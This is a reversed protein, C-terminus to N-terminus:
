LCAHRCGGAAERAFMDFCKDDILQAPPSWLDSVDAIPVEALEEIPTSSPSIGDCGM